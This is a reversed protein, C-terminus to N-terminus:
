RGGVFGACFLTSIHMCCREREQAKQFIHESRKPHPTKSHYGGLAGYSPQKLGHISGVAAPGFFVHLRQCVLLRCISFLSFFFTFGATTIRSSLARWKLFGFSQTLVECSDGGLSVHLCIFPCHLSKIYISLYIQVYIYVYICVNQNTQVHIVTCVATYTWHGSWRAIMNATSEGHDM